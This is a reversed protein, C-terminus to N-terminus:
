EAASITEGDISFGEAMLASQLEASFVAKAIADRQPDKLKFVAVGVQQRTVPGKEEVLKRVVEVAKATVGDDEAEEEAKAAKTTAAKTTAAKVAAAPAKAATKAGKKEWPLQLIKIPVPIFRERTDDRKLTKREQQLLAQWTARMGKFIATIDDSMKNEPFGANVTNSLLTYLNTSKNLGKVEDSAPVIRRGDDSPAIRAPDGASYFQAYEAGDDGVLNLMAGTSAKAKGNYDFIIVNAEAVTYDGDPAVAGGEVAESPRLSLGDGM